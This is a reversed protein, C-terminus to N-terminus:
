TNLLKKFLVNGWTNSIEPYISDVEFGYEKLYNQIKKLTSNSEYQNSNIYETYIYDFNKILSGFGTLSQVEYGQTDSILVNYDDIKINLSDFRKIEMEEINNFQISTFEKLHDLPKLFSSSEGNNSAIYMKKMENKDGLAFNYCIFDPNNNKLIDFVKKIPEFCIVNKTYKRFLNSEQGTNAGVQIIGKINKIKELVEVEM